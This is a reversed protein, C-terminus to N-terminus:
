GKLPAGIEPAHLHSGSVPSSYLPEIFNLALSMARPWRLERVLTQHEEDESDEADDEMRLGCLRGVDPHSSTVKQSRRSRCGLRVPQM